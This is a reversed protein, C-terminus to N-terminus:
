LWYLQYRRSDENSRGHSFIHGIPPNNGFQPVDEIPVDYELSDRFSCREFSRKSFSFEVEFAFYFRYSRPNPILGIIDEPQALMELLSDFNLGSFDCSISISPVPNGLAIHRVIKSMWRQGECKIFESPIIFKSYHIVSTCTPPITM